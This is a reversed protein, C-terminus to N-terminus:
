DKLVQVHLHPVGGVVRHYIITPKGRYSYGWSNVEKVIEDIEDQAYIKSRLDAADWILHPSTAIGGVAKNEEEARLICTIVPEEVGISDCFVEIRTLVDYLNENHNELEEFETKIKDTKFKM